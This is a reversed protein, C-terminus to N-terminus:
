TRVEGSAPFDLDTEETDFVPAEAKPRSLFQTALGAHAPCPDHVDCPDDGTCRSEIQRIALAARAIQRAHVVKLALARADNIGGVKQIAEDSLNGGIAAISQLATTLREVEERLAELEQADAIAEYDPYQNYSDDSM